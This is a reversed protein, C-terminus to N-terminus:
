ADPGHYKQGTNMCHRLWIRWTYDPRTFGAGALRERTLGGATLLRMAMPRAEVACMAMSGKGARLQEAQMRHLDLVNNKWAPGREMADRVDVVEASVFEFYRRASDQHVSRDVPRMQIFLIKRTANAPNTVLDLGHTIVGQILARHAWEWKQFREELDFMTMGDPLGCGGPSAELAAWRANERKKIACIERHNEWDAKQCERSCYKVTKCGKCNSLVKTAGNAWCGSCREKMNKPSQMSTHGTTRALAQQNSVVLATSTTSPLPLFVRQVLSPAQLASLVVIIHGSTIREVDAHYSSGVLTNRLRLDVHRRKGNNIYDRLRGKWDVDMKTYPWGSSPLGISGVPVAELQVDLPRAEVMAATVGGQGERASEAQMHRLGAILYPWPTPLKKADEMSMKYADEFEFYMGVKGKHQDRTRPKLKIYMIHDNCQTVDYQLGLCGIITGIFLVNHFRIWDALQKNYELMPIGDPTLQRDIEAISTEESRMKLLEM